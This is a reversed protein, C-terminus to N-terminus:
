SNVLPKSFQKDIQKNKKQMKAYILPWCMIIIHMGLTGHYSYGNSVTEFTLTDNSAQGITKSSLVLIHMTFNLKCNMKCGFMCLGIIVIRIM